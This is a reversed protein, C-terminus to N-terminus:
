FIYNMLFIKISTSVETYRNSFNFYTNSGESPILTLAYGIHLILYCVSFGYALYISYNFQFSYIYLLYHSRFSIVTLALLLSWVICIFIPGRPSKGLRKKLGLAYGLHMFWTIGQVASLFFSIKNIQEDGRNIDIYIQILPLFALCLVIVCRINIAILQIRGRTVFGEHRGFYYASSIALLALVPIHLCLQQFCLGLDHRQPAWIKFDEGCLDVWNWRWQASDQFSTNAM